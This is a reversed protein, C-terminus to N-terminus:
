TTPLLLTAFHIIANQLFYITQVITYPLGHTNAWPKGHLTYPQKIIGWIRFSHGVMDFSTIVSFGETACDM